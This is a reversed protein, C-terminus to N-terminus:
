LAASATEDSGCAMRLSFLQADAMEVRLRVSRGQWAELSAMRGKTPVWAWSAIAAIANGKIRNSHQLDFPGATPPPKSDAPEIGVAIYGAASTVVNVLLRAGSSANGPVSPCDNPVVVPTTLFSAPNVFDYPAELAVFGDRRLSLIGIASNNGWGHHPDAVGAHTFPSGTHFLHIADGDKSPIMGKAMWTSSTDVSTRSLSSDKPNCWGGMVGPTWGDCRNVGLSVFPARTNDAAYTLNERLDHALLLRTDLLGDNSRADPPGVHVDTGSFHSFMSPFFLHVAPSEASPYPLHANTYVDLMPPDHEDAGFVVECGCPEPGAGDCTQQTSDAQWDSINTTICRGLHRRHGADHAGINRRVYVVYKRLGADWYATPQTDDSFTLPKSPLPHWRVGDPSGWLQGRAGEGNSCVMKWQEAAPVGPRVPDIFVSCGEAGILINNDTSGSFNYLGLSPKVWSIGDHSEALCVLAPAHPAAVCDSARWCM